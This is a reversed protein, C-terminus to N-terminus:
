VSVDFGGEAVPAAASVDCAESAINVLQAPDTTGGGSYAAFVASGSYGASFSVSSSSSGSNSISQGAAEKERELRNFLAKLYEADAKAIDRLEESRHKIKMLKYDAPDMETQSSAFMSDALESLGSNELLEKMQKEMMDQLEAMQERMQEQMRNQQARMLQRMMDQQAELQERMMDQQAKLQEQMAQATDGAGGQGSGQGSSLRDVLANEAAEEAAMGKQDEKEGLEGECPGGTVKMMEEEQLHRVKKKAVREIAQAHVIASQLEEADVGYNQRQMKLRIVERRARGAVQKASFSTKSRLIQTSIAKFSYRLKKLQLKTNKSKTRSARLSRAYSASENIVGTAYSANQEAQRSGSLMRRIASVNSRTDASCAEQQRRGYQNTNQIARSGFRFGGAQNVNINMPM